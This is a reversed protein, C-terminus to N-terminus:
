ARNSTSTPSATTTGLRDFGARLSVLESEHRDLRAFLDHLQTEVRDFHANMRKTQNDILREWDPLAVERHFRMLTKFLDDGSPNRYPPKM